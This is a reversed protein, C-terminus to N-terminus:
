KVCEEFPKMEQIEMGEPMDFQNCSHLLDLFHKLYQLTFPPAQVHGAELSARLAATGLDANDGRIFVGCWDDGFRMVGTEPRM